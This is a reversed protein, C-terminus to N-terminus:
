GGISNISRDINTKVGPSKRFCQDCRTGQFPLPKRKAIAKKGALLPTRGFGMKLSGRGTGEVRRRKAEDTREPKQKARVDM